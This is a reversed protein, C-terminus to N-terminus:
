TLNYDIENLSDVGDSIIKVAKNINEPSNTYFEMRALTAGKTTIRDKLIKSMAKSYQGQPLLLLYNKYNNQLFYNTIAETQRGPAHGFVFVNKEALVPNNSLTIMTINKGKIYDAVQRAKASYIPGIIIDTRNSNIAKLSQELKENTSSDYVKVRMTIKSNNNLGMKIMQAYQRSFTADEATIPLLIAVDITSSDKPNFFQSCSSLAILLIPFFIRSLISKLFKQKINNIM